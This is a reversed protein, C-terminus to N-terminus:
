RMTTCQHVYLLAVSKSRVREHGYFVRLRLLEAVIIKKITNTCGSSFTGSEIVSLVVSARFETNLLEVHLWLSNRINEGLKEKSIFFNIIVYSLKFM